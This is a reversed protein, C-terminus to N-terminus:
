KFKCKLWNSADFSNLCYVGNRNEKMSEPLQQEHSEEGSIGQFGMMRSTGYM